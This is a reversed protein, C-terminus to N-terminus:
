SEANSTFKTVREGAMMLGVTERDAEERSVHGVIEGEYLVDIRDSLAFVEDLDESILLIAAGQNRADVLLNRVNETAGIDLGRTPYAAVIVQPQSSLERALILKQLNGGSLKRSPTEASPTAIDYAKILAEAQERMVRRNMFLRGGIPPIRYSKLALNEAVSLNPASGM